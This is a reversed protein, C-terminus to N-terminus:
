KVNALYFLSALVLNLKHIRTMKSRYENFMLKVRDVVDDEVNCVIKMNDLTDYVNSRQDNKYYESTTLNEHTVDKLYRKEVLKNTKNLVGPHGSLYSQFHHQNSYMANMHDNTVETVRMDHESLVMGCGYGDQGLCVTDGSCDDQYM